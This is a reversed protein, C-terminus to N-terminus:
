LHKLLDGQKQGQEWWVEYCLLRLLDNEDFGGTRGMERRTCPLVKVQAKIGRHEM